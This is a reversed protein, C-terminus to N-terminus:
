RSARWARMDMGEGACALNRDLCWIPCWPRRANEAYIELFAPDTLAAQRLYNWEWALVVRPESTSFPLPTVGPLVPTNTTATLRWYYGSNPAADIWESKFSKQVSTIEAPVWDSEAICGETDRVYVYVRDGMRFSEARLRPLLPKAIAEPLLGNLYDIGRRMERLEDRSGGMTLLANVAQQALEVLRTLNARGLVAAQEWSAIGRLRFAQEGVLMELPPLGDM